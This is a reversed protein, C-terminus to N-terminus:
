AIRDIDYIEANFKYNRGGQSELVFENDYIIKEISLNSDETSCKMWMIADKLYLSLPFYGEMDWKDKESLYLNKDIQASQFINIVDDISSENETIGVFDKVSLSDNVYFWDLMFCDEPNNYDEYYGYFIYIFGGQKVKHVSYYAPLKGECKRFCEIPIVKAIDTIKVEFRNGLFKVIKHIDLEHTILSNYHNSNNVKCNFEYEKNAVVNNSNQLDYLAELKNKEKCGTLNFLLLILVLLYTAFKRKGGM